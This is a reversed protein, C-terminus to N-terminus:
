SNHLRPQQWIFDARNYAELILHQAIAYVDRRETNYQGEKLLSGVRVLCDYHPLTNDTGATYGVIYVVTYGGPKYAGMGYRFMTGAALRKITKGKKAGQNEM